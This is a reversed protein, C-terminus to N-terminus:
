NKVEKETASKETKVVEWDKVEDYIEDIFSNGGQDHYDLYLKMFSKKVYVPIKRYPVYRYYIAVLEKRLLDNSSTILKNIKESQNDDTRKIEDIVTAAYKDVFDSTFEDYLKKLETKEKEQKKEKIKQYWSLHGFFKEGAQMLCYIFAFLGCLVTVVDSFSLNSLQKM